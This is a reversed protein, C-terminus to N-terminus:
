KALKKNLEASFENQAISVNSYITEKKGKQDKQEIKNGLFDRKSANKLIKLSEERMVNRLKIEWEKQKVEMQDEITISALWERFYLDINFYAEQIATKNYEKYEIHRIKKIKDLYEMFDKDIVKKTKEVIDTIRVAWGENNEDALVENHINIEDFIENQIM